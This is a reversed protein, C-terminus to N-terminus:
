ILIHQKILLLTKNIWGSAKQRFQFCLLYFFQMVRWLVAEVFSPKGFIKFIFYQFRIGFGPVVIEPKASLLNKKKLNIGVSTSRSKKVHSRLCVYIKKPRVTVQITSFLHFYFAIYVLDSFFSLWVLICQVHQVLTWTQNM